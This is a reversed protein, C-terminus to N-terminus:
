RISYVPVTLYISIGSVVSLVLQLVPPSHNSVNWRLALGCAGLAFRASYSSRGLVRALVLLALLQTALRFANGASMAATGLLM